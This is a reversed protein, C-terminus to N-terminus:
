NTKISKRFYPAPSVTARIEIPPGYGADPHNLPSDGWLLTVETGPETVAMDVIALSLFNGANASFGCHQSIGVTRGSMTVADHQYTKYLSLPLRAIRGMPDGFLARRYIEASDDENWVLTVKARKPAISKGRLAESGIFARDKDILRGYGVEVADVFYDDIDNSHFSGGLSGFGEASMAPLWERYARASEVTYIDPLPIPLWASEIASTGLAGGGVRLMGYKAGIAEIRDRVRQQDEWPGFLEYGAQGAMGHRLARVAIGAIDLEGTRFFPIEPLTGGSVEEIVAHANPGQVQFIYLRPLGPAVLTTEDRQIDIRYGGTQAHFHVWNIVLSAGCLRYLDDELRFCIGDAIMNGRESCVILQKASGIPFDGFRNLGVRHLLDITDSGRMYLNTQHHSMDIFACTEMWARQERRWDSYEFPLVPFVFPGLPSGRLLALPDGAQDLADQLSPGAAAELM